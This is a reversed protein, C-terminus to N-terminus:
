RGTQADVALLGLLLLTTFLLLKKFKITLYEAISFNETGFVGLERPSRNQFSKIPDTSQGNSNTFIM